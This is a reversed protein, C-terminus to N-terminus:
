EEVPNTVPSGQDVAGSHGLHVGFTQGGSRLHALLGGALLVERERPTFGLEVFLETEADIILRSRPAAGALDTGIDPLTMEMGAKLKRLDDGNAFTLPLIGQAILNRRHIRAFSRAIVAKIGLQKPALAAHERSSGQGYNSGAVIFGGGGREARSAFEPDLRRFVFRAMAAVNSRLAMVEAGDPSLDGTSVDDGVVILVRGKLAPPLAAQPPPPQINPGRPIEIARAADTAPPPVIQDDDAAPNMVAAALVPETPGLERPDTIVGRLATAAATAPSCLYVRDDMTGSRGPFNRNFTRVSVAGTPPAQGMGVCPGCVPELMRAGAMVLDRYVGSRILTDLIQRSGPTVTMSLHPPLIRDRLVAAVIALDDYGSNVSSGVCVQAVETGAVERVPVVNGPSSPKAILPELADLEITEREDYSAGAEAALALWQPERRQERLWERTQDDSPFVATTAGLEAIMNCITARQTVSFAAVGDGHFEFIRGLGGRVGRRRLLELIVDKAQVWPRLRGRLEVGVVRPAGIEFPVGALAAAVELGGAGIALMGVAGSTTTHSDAGILLEGPRAFRELHLYHCIGNGPRSFHLGHKACFAQLFRHDDPNKFDVQITNHDVYQVALPIKVPGDGLELFELASMTGTADQLLAQDVRLAIEEPGGLRGAVLHDALLKETLNQPM